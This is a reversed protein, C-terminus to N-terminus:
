GPHRGLMMLRAPQPHERDSKVTGAIATFVDTPAM